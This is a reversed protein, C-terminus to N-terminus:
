KPVTVNRYVFLGGFKDICLVPLRNMSKLLDEIKFYRIKLECIVNVNVLVAQQIVAHIICHIPETDYIQAHNTVKVPHDCAARECLCMNYISPSYVALRKYYQM